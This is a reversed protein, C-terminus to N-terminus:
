RAEVEIIMETKEVANGEVNECPPYECYAYYDDNGDEEEAVEVPTARSHDGLMM